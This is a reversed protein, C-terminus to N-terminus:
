GPRPRRILVTRSAGSEVGVFGHDRRWRLSPKAEAETLVDLHRVPGTVETRPIGVVYGYQRALKEYRRTTGDVFEDSARGHEREDLFARLRGGTTATLNGWRGPTLPHEGGMWRDLGAWRFGEAFLASVLAPTLHELRRSTTAPRGEGAPEM